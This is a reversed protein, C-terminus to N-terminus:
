RREGSWAYAHLVDRFCPLQVLGTRQREVLERCRLLLNQSSRNGTGAAGDCTELVRDTPILLKKPARVEAMLSCRGAMLLLWGVAAILWCCRGAADADTGLVGAGAIAETTVPAGISM